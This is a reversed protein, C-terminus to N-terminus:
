IWGRHKAALVAQARDATGLKGYVRDAPAYRARVQGDRCPAPIRQVHGLQRCRGAVFVAVERALDELEQVELLELAHGVGACDSGPRQEGALRLIALVLAVDAEVAAVIAERPGGSDLARLLM